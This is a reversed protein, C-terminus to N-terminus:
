VGKKEELTKWLKAQKAACVTVLLAPAPLKEQEATAPTPVM